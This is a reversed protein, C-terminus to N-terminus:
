FLKQLKLAAGMDGNVKIKGTMYATMPNQTGRVIKEFTEQSGRITVDADAAGESVSVEGDEVRVTWTGADEIEFVYSSTMGATRGPDVRAPLTEFFERVGDAV